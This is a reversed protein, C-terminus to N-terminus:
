LDFVLYEMTGMATGDEGFGGMILIRGNGSNTATHLFRPLLNVPGDPDIELFAELTDEFLDVSGVPPTNHGTLGGIRIVRGLGVLVAAHETRFIRPSPIDEFLLGLSSRPDLIFAHAEVGSDIFIAGTVLQRSAVGPPQSALETQSHGTLLEIFPGVAPSLAELSDGVLLFSRIDRRIGLEPQPVYSVDGTGGLLTIIPGQPTSLVTATHFARRIPPGSVVLPTMTGAAPDYVEPTEVLDSVASVVPVSSGGAFLIRGDPLASATHGTRPHILDVDARLMNGSGAPLVFVHDSAPESTSGSGGAILIDGLNLVTATHGGRPTSWTQALVESSAEMLLYNITDVQAVDDSDFAEVLLRNLGATLTVPISWEGSGSQVLPAGGLEVRNVSRFSTANVVLTIEAQHQIVLPDPGVVEIRPSSVDIFPRECGAAFIALLALVLILPPASTRMYVFGDFARDPGPGM